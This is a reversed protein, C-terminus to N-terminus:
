INSYTRFVGRGKLFVQFYLLYWPFSVHEFNGSYEPGSIEGFGKM